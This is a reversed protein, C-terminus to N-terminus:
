QMLINDMLKKITEKINEIYYTKEVSLLIIGRPIKFQNSWYSSEKPLHFEGAKIFICKKTPTVMGEMVELSIEFTNEKTLIIKYNDTFYVINGMNNNSISGKILLYDKSLQIQDILLHNDNNNYHIIITKKAELINLIDIVDLLYYLDEYNHFLINEKTVTNKTVLYDFYLDICEKGTFKNKRQIGLYKEISELKYNELELINKNSQLIRYLDLSKNLDISLNTRYYKLKNNIFPIDFSTGNYNVIMDVESLIKHAELLIDVEDTLEEAFYQIARWSKLSHDLYVIGILYITDANRNFGTTEIDLFCIKKDIFQSHIGIDKEITKEILEM